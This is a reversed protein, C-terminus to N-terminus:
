SARRKAREFAERLRRTIYDVSADLAPGLYPQAPTGPHNVETAFVVEGDVTFRLPNGTITHPGTGFEVEEAYKVNTGIVATYGDAIEEVVHDISGRLTGTDVPANEKAEREIKLAIEDMAAPLEDELFVRELKQLKRALSDPGNGTTWEAGATVRPM